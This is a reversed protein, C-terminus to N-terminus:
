KADEKKEKETLPRTMDMDLIMDRIKNAGDRKSNPVVDTGSQDTQNIISRAETKLDEIVDELVNLLDNSNIPKDSHLQKDMKQLKLVKQIDEESIGRDRMEKETITMPDVSSDHLIDTIVDEIEKAIKDKEEQTLNRGDRPIMLEIAKLKEAEDLKRAIEEEPSLDKKHVLDNIEDVIHSLNGQLKEQDIKKNNKIDDRQELLELLIKEKEPTLGLKKIDELTLNTVDINEDGLLDKIMDDVKEVLDTKEATTMPRDIPINM